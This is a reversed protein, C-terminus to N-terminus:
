FIIPGRPDRPGPPFRDHCEVFKRDFCLFGNLPGDLQGLFETMLFHAPVMKKEREDGNGVGDDFRDEALRAGVRRQRRRVELRCERATGPDLAVGPLTIEGLLGLGHERAGLGLRTVELVVVDADLVQQERDQRLGLVRGGVDHAPELERLGRDEGRELVDGAGM